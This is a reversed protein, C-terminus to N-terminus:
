KFFPGHPMPEGSLDLATVHGKKDCSVGMWGCCDKSPNWSDLRNEYDFTLNNKLQLLLSRQDDHCLGSVVFLNNCLCLWFLPMVVLASVLETRM